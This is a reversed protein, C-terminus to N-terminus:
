LYQLTRAGQTKKKQDQYGFYVQAGDLQVGRAMQIM